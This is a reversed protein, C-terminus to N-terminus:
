IIISFGVLKNTYDRMTKFEKISYIKGNFDVDDNNNVISNSFLGITFNGKVEEMNSNTLIASTEKVFSIKETIKTKSVIENNDNYKKKIITINM